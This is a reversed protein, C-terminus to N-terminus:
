LAEEFTRVIKGKFVSGREYVATLYTTYYPKLVVLSPFNFIVCMCNMDTHAIPSM